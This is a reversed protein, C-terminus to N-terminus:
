EIDLVVGTLGNRQLLQMMEDVKEQTAFAGVQMVMRGNIRTRFADSVVRRVRAQDSSSTANVIV